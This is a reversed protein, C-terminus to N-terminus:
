RGRWIAWDDSIVSCGPLESELAIAGHGTVQSGTVYVFQLSQMDSLQLLGIDSISTGNLHLSSLQGLRTLERLGVDTVRSNALDLIRLRQLGGIHKLAGDGVETDALSLIELCSLESLFKVGEDGVRVGDLSLLKLQDLNRICVLGADTVATDDLRLEEISAIACLIECDSDSTQTDSLYVEVLNEYEHPGNGFLEHLWEPGVAEEVVVESVVRGGLREIHARVEAPRHSYTRSSLAVFAATVMAVCLVCPVCMLKTRNATAMRKIAWRPRLHCPTTFLHHEHVDDCLVGYFAASNQVFDHLEADVQSTV